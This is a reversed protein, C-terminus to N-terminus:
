KAMSVSCVAFVFAVFAVCVSSAFRDKARSSALVKEALSPLASHSTKGSSASTLESLIFVAALSM